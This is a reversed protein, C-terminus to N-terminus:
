SHNAKYVKANCVDLDDGFYLKSCKYYGIQERYFIARFKYGQSDCDFFPTANGKPMNLTYKNDIRDMSKKTKKRLEDVQSSAQQKTITGTALNNVILQIQQQSYLATNDIEKCYAVPIEAYSNNLFINFFIIQFIALKNTM